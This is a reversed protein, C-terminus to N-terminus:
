AARLERVLVSDAEQVLGREREQGQGGNHTARSLESKAPLSHSFLSERNDAKDWTDSLGCVIKDFTSLFPKSESGEGIDEGGKRPRETGSLKQPFPLFVDHFKPLFIHVSLVGNRPRRGAGGRITDFLSDKGDWAKEIEAFLDTVHDTQGFNNQIDYDEAPIGLKIFEGKFTGSQEFFCHAKRIKM